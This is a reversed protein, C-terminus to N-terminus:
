SPLDQQLEKIQQQIGQDGCQEAFDLAILSASSAQEFQGMECLLHALACQASASIDMLQLDDALGLAKHYFSMALEHDETFDALLEWQLPHNSDGEEHEFCLEYLTNYHQQYQDSDAQEAAALLASSIKELSSHLSSTM